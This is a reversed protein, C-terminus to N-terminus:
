GRKEVGPGEEALMRIAARPVDDLGAGGDQYHAVIERRM